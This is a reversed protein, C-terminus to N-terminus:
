KKRGAKIDFADLMLLYNLLGSVKLFTDGYEFTVLGANETFNHGTAYSVLYLAGNGLNMFSWVTDLYASAPGGSGLLPYFHGGWARGVLCMGWVVGGLVLGRALKKQALHGAGPLLWAVAGILWAQWNIGSSKEM